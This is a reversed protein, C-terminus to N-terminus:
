PAVNTTVTEIKPLTPKLNAINLVQFANNDKPMGNGYLKTVYVREDELFHYEDSFEIRGSKGTGLGFFYRGKMGMIAQGEPVYPSQIVTTPYPFVEGHYSGDVRQLTTAEFIIGWYDVPNVVLVVEGIVRNRGEANPAKSMEKLVKAFSKPSFDPMVIPTKVPKAALESALDRNMGLPENTGTGVLIAKELGEYIAETLIIRVYRDLWVPGLDLMAKCIPLYASLKHLSMDVKRFSSSIEKAIADCLPSWTALEVGDANYIFEISAGTNQFDVMDLLPHEATLDEFVAEIITKPMVVDLDTLAQMPNKAKAAEAFKQYYNREESTLQRVGRQALIAADVEDSAAVRQQRILEQQVDNAWAGLISVVDEQSEAAVIKERMEQNLSTLTKSM